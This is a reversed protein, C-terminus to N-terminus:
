GTKSWDGGLSRGTIPVAIGVRAVVIFEGSGLAPPKRGERRDGGADVAEEVEVGFKEEVVVVVVLRGRRGVGRLCGRGEPEWFSLRKM